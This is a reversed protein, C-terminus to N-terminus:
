LVKDALFGAAIREVPGTWWDLGRHAQASCRREGPWRSKMEVCGKVALCSPLPLLALDLYGFHVAVRPMPDAHPLKWRM